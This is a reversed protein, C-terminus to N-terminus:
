RTEKTRRHGISSVKIAHRFRFDAVFVAETLAPTKVDWYFIVPPYSKTLILVKDVVSIASFRTTTYLIRANM